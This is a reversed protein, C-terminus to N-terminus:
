TFSIWTCHYVTVKALYIKRLHNTRNLNGQIVTYYLIRVSYFKPSHFMVFDQCPFSPPSNVAANFNILLPLDTGLDSKM